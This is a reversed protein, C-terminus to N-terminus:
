EKNEYFFDKLTIATFSTILLLIENMGLNSYTSLFLTLVLYINITLIELAPIKKNFISKLSLFAILTSAIIISKPNYIGNLYTLLFIGISLVTKLIMKMNLLVQIITFFFTFKFLVQRLPPIPLRAPRLFGDLNSPSPEIGEKPVM